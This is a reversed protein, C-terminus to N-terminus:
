ELRVSFEVNAFRVKSGAPLAQFAHPPIPGQGNVFTGNNSGEDRVELQGNEFRLTAHVGSVRQESLFVQCQAGDRGVKFERGPSISFTGASGSITAHTAMAPPAGFGGQQLAPGGFPQVPPAFPAPAPAPFNPRPAPPPPASAGRRRGGGRTAAVVLLLLTVGGFTGLGIWLWPPPRKKAKIALVTQATVGSARKAVNDYVVLRATMNTGSGSLFSEKDPVVFEVMQESASVATAKMGEQLLQLQAKKAAEITNGESPAEFNKPLLYLEARDKNGGWCFNGFIKVKSGPFVPDREAGAETETRKIDLPWTTPDIGVPVNQFTGDAIISSNGGTFTLKFSQTTTPAVCSLRWRVLQMQNFRRKVADVVKPGSGRGPTVVAFHGGIEFNALSSMFAEANDKSEETLGGSPFWVSVMPVPMKPAAINDEPFRGASLQKKLLLANNATTTADFNSNGNSLLVVAQHMPVQVDKPNRSSRVNGLEKFANTIGDQIIKGLPRSRGTDTRLSGSGLFGIAEKSTTWTTTATIDEHFFKVIVIDQPGMAELFSRAVGKAENFLGAGLSSSSDILIVWATGVGNQGISDGWKAKSEFTAPYDEPPISVTLRADGEPFAVTDFLANPQEMATAMCDHRAGGKLNTCGAKTFVQDIPHPQTLDVVTTLIPTGDQSAVRPDIRLIHAEPAALAASTGAVMAAM